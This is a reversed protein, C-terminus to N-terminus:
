GARRRRASIGLGIAALIAFASPEPVAVFRWSLGFDTAIDGQVRLTYTGPGLNETYLHEINDDTGISEDALLGLFSGSSDFLSLDLNALTTSASFGSTADTDVVDINWTLAASLDSISTLEFEYFLDDSGNFNGYDWGLLDSATAPNATEGNFEGGILMEYSNLVNLEGFGFIEDIPRTSTRDWDAFKDKTAGAFLLSKIVENQEANSSTAQGRLLAAAGTVMPTSFSTFSNATNTGHPAVLQPKFRGSGYFTTAGRSHEGNTLGVTIANYSPALLDPTSATGDNSNNAGVVMVTNDRNIVFDFRQLIDTAEADTLGNGIYSHNGVDFSDGFPDNGSAVGLGRNIYDNADYLTVNTIDRAISTTNGFFNTSVSNTHSNLGTSTGTGDILTKGSFNSSSTDPFYDGGGDPAEAVMANVGAGNTIAGGYRNILETYGVDDLWAQACVETPCFIAFCALTAWIIMEKKTKM